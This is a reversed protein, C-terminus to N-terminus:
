PWGTMVETRCVPVETAPYRLACSRLDGITLWWSSTDDEEGDCSLRALFGTGCLRPAGRASDATRPCLWGVIWRGPVWVAGGPCLWWVTLPHGGVTSTQPPVPVGPAADQVPCPMSPLRRCPRTSCRGESSGRRPGGTKL